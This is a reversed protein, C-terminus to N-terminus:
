TLYREMSRCPHRTSPNWLVTVREFRKLKQRSFAQQVLTM